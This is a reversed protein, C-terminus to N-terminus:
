NMTQAIRAPRVPVTDGTTEDVVARHGLPVRLRIRVGDACDDSSGHRALVKVRVEAATESVETRHSARCSSVTLALSRVDPGPRAETVGVARERNAQVQLAVAVIVPVALLLLVFQRRTLQRPISAM